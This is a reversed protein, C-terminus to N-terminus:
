AAAPHRINARKNKRLMARAAEQYQKAEQEFEPIRTWEGREVSDLLEQEAKTLKMSWERYLYQKTMKRSPRREFGDFLFMKM